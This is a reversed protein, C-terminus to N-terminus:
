TLWDRVPLVVWVDNKWKERFLLTFLLTQGKGSSACKPYLLPDSRTRFSCAGADTRQIM